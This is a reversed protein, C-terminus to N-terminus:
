YIPEIELYEDLDDPFDITVGGLQVIDMSIAYNMKVKEGEISMEMPFAMYISEFNDEKNIVTKIEVDGFKLDGSQDLLAEFGELNGMQQELLNQLASSDLTFSLEKGNTVDKVSENKIASDPFNMLEPNLNAQQELAKDLPLPMKVKEGSLDMYYMGDKYYTKMSVSQEMVDMNMDLKMQIDTESLLVEAASGTMTMNVKEGAYEMEIDADMDFLLSDANQMSENAKTYLEYMSQRTEGSNCSTLILTSILMLVLVLTKKMVIM